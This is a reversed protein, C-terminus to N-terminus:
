TPRAASTDSTAITRTNAPSQSTVTVSPLRLEGSRFSPSWVKRTVLSGSPAARSIASRPGSMKLSTDPRLSRSMM